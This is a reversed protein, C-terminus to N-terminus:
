INMMDTPLKLFFMLFVFCQSNAFPLANVLSIIYPRDVALLQHVRDVLPGTRLVKQLNNPSMRFKMTAVRCSEKYFTGGVIARHHKTICVDTIYRVPQTQWRSFYRSHKWLISLHAKLEDERRM